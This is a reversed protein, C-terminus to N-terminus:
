AIPSKLTVFSLFSSLRTYATRSVTDLVDRAQACASACLPSPLRWCAVPDAGPVERTHPSPRKIGLHNAGGTYRMVSPKRCYALRQKPLKFPFNLFTDKVNATITIVITAIVTIKPTGHDELAIM